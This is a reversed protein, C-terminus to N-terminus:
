INQITNIQFTFSGDVATQFRHAKAINKKKM